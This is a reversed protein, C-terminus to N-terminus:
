SGTAPGNAVGSVGVWPSEALSMEMVAAAGLIVLAIIVWRVRHPQWSTPNIRTVAVAVGAAIALLIWIAVESM